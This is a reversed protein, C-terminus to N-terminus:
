RDEGHKKEVGGIYEERFDEFVKGAVSELKVGSSEIVEIVKDDTYNEDDFVAKMEKLKDSPLAHLIEEIIREDLLREIREKEAQKEELPVGKEDIMKEIAQSIILEDPIETNNLIM